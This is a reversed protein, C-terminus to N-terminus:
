CFTRDIASRGQLRPASGCAAPCNARGDRKLDALGLSSAFNKQAGRREAKGVGRMKLPLAINDEITLWPFLHAEQFVVGLEQVVGIIAVIASGCRAAM